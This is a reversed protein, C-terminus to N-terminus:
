CQFDSFQRFGSSDGAGGPALFLLLDHGRQSIANAKGTAFASGHSSRSSDAGGIRMLSDFHRDQKSPARLWVVIGLNTLHPSTQGFIAKSAPDDSRNTSRPAKIPRDRRAGRARQRM